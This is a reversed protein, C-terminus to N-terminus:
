APVLQNSPVSKVLESSNTCRFNELLCQMYTGEWQCM